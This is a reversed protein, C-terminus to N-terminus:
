CRLRTPAGTVGIQVGDDLVSPAPFVACFFLVILWLVCIHGLEVQGIIRVTAVVRKVPLPDKDRWVTSLAGPLPLGFIYGLLVPRGIVRLAIETGAINAGAADLIRVIGVGEHELIIEARQPRVGRVDPQVIVFQQLGFTVSAQAPHDAKRGAVIEGQRLHIHSRDALHDIQPGLLVLFQAGDIIDIVDLDKLVLTCDHTAAVGVRVPLDPGLTGDGVLRGLFQGIHLLVQLAIAGGQKSIVQPQLHAPILPDDAVVGVEYGQHWKPRDPREFGQDHATAPDGAEALHITGFFLRQGIKQFAKRGAIIIHEVGRKGVRCPEMLRWCISSRMGLPIKMNM